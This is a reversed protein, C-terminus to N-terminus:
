SIYSFRLISVNVPSMAGFSHNCIMINTVCKELVLVGVNSMPSRKSEKM